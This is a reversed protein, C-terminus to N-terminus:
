GPVIDAAAPPESGPLPLQRAMVIEPGIPGTLTEGTPEFGSRRYAGQARLNDRHM